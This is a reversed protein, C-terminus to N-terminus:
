KKGKQKAMLWKKLCWQWYQKGMRDRVGERQHSLAKWFITSLM